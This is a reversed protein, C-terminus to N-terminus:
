CCIFEEFQKLSVEDVDDSPLRSMLMSGHPVFGQCRLAYLLSKLRPYVYETAEHTKDGVLFRHLKGDAEIVARGPTNSKKDLNFHRVRDFKGQLHDDGLFRAMVMYGSETKCGQIHLAEDLCKKALDFRGHAQAHLMLSMWNVYTKESPLSALVEQAEKLCGVRGWLDVMCGFHESTPKLNWYETMTRYHMCGEHIFGLHGCASLLCLYTVGDPVVGHCLMSLYTDGKYTGNRGAGSIITNWSERHHKFREFITSAEEFFGCRAYMDILSCGIKDDDDFSMRIAIAHISMGEQLAPIIACAKLVSLVTLQDLKCGSHQMSRFCLIAEEGLNHQTYGDILTNWCVVSPKPLQSFVEHADVLMGFKSYVSVLTTGVYDSKNFGEETILSHMIRGRAYHRDTSFCGRSLGTPFAMHVLSNVVHADRSNVVHANRDAGSSVVLAHVLRGDAFACTESVARLVNMFTVHDPQISLHQMKLFLLFAEEWMEHVVYGAIMAGCTVVDVTSFNDFLKRADHICYYKAYVDILISWVIADVDFDRETIWSLVLKCSELSAYDPFAKLINAVTVNDPKISAAEMLQFLQLVKKHNKEKSFGSIITNWAIIDPAKLRGFVKQADHTCSNKGYFDLLVTSIHYDLEMNSDIVHHHILM